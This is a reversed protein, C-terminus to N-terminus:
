GALTMMVGAPLFCEPCGDTYWAHEPCVAALYHSREGLLVGAERELISELYFDSLILMHEHARLKSANLDEETRPVAVDFVVFNFSDKIVFMVKGHVLDPEDQFELVESDRMCQIRLMMLERCHRPLQQPLSDSECLEYVDMLLLNDGFTIGADPLIVASPRSIIYPIAQNSWFGFSHLIYDSLKEEPVLPYGGPATVGGYEWLFWRLYTLVNPNDFVHIPTQIGGNRRHTKYYESNDLQFIKGVEIV